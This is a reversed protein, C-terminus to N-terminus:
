LYFRVFIGYNDNQNRNKGYFNFNYGGGLTVFNHLRVGLRLNCYSREHENDELNHSYMAKAETFFRLNKTIKPTYKASAIIDTGIWPRFNVNPLIIFRLDQYRFGFSTALAPVFGKRFHFQMNAGIGLASTVRYILSNNSVMEVPSKTYDYDVLMSNTTQFFLKPSFVRTGIVNFSLKDGVMTEVLIPNHIRSFMSLSILLLILLSSTRKM